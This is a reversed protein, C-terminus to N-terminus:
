KRESRRISFTPAIQWDCNVRLVRKNAFVMAFSFEILSLINCFSLGLEQDVGLPLGQIEIM